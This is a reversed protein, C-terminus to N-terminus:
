EEEDAEEEQDAKISDLTKNIVDAKVDDLNDNIKLMMATNAAQQFDNVNEAGAAKAMAMAEESAM